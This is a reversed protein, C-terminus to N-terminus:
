AVALYERMIHMYYPLPAVYFSARFSGATNSLSETEWIWRVLHPVPGDKELRLFAILIM